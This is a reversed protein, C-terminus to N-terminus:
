KKRKYVYIGVAGIVAVVAAGAVIPLTSTHRVYDGESATEVSEDVVKGGEDALSESDRETGTEVKGIVRPSDAGDNNIEYGGDSTDDEELTSFPPFSDVTDGNEDVMQWMGNLIYFGYRNDETDITWNGNDDDNFDFDEIYDRYYDKYAYKLEGLDTWDYDDSGYNENLWEDLLHHKYSAEPFEIGDDGKGQWMEDWIESEIYDRDLNEDAYSTIGVSASLMFAAIGAFIKKM